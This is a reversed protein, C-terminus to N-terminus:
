GDRSVVELIHQRLMVEDGYKFGQHVLTVKGARDIVFSSPMAKIGYSAPVMGEEDQLNRYTVSVRKLFKRAKNPERDVNVALVVFDSTGLEEQLAQMKPMAILCPGCWSAWFDLYVVKGRHDSLRTSSDTDLLDPLEFLPAIDGVMTSAFSLESRVTLVVLGWLIVSIIVIRNLMTMGFLSQNGPEILRRYTKGNVWFVRTVRRFSLM